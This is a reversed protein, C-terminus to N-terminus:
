PTNHTSRSRSQMQSYLCRTPSDEFSRAEAGAAVLTPLGHLHADEARRIGAAAAAARAM